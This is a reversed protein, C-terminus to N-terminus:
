HYGCIQILKDGSSIMSLHQFGLIEMHLRLVSPYGHESCRGEDSGAPDRLVEKIFSAKTSLLSGGKGDPAIFLSFGNDEDSVVEAGPLEPDNLPTFAYKEPNMRLEVTTDDDPLPVTKKDPLSAALYTLISSELTRPSSAPFGAVYNAKRTTEDMLISISVPGALMQRM